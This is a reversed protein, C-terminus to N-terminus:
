CWSRDVKWRRWWIAASTIISITPETSITRIAVVVVVVESIGIPEVGARVIVVRLETVKAIDEIVEAVAKAVISITIFGILSPLAAM